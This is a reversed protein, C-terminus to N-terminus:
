RRSYVVSKRSIKMAFKASVFIHITKSNMKESSLTKVATQDKPFINIDTRIVVLKSFISGGVFRNLKFGDILMQISNIGNPDM